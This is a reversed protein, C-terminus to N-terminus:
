TRYWKSKRGGDAKRLLFSREMNTRNGERRAAFAWLAQLVATGDRVREHTPM